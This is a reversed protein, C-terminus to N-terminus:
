EGRVRNTEQLRRDLVRFFRYGNKKLFNFADDYAKDVSEILSSDGMEDHYGGLDEFIIVPRHKEILSAGSLIIDADSGDCDIKIFDLRDIGRFANDMSKVPVDIRVTLERNLDLMSASKNQMEPPPAYLTAVGEEIRSVAFEHVYVNKLRNLNLNSILRRRFEPHPEVAHVMACRNSFLLTWVGINAGLDIVVDDKKIFKNIVWTVKDEYGGFWYINWCILENTDIEILLDNKYEM